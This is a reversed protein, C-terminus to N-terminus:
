SRQYDGGRIHRGQYVFTIDTTTLLAPASSYAGSHQQSSVQVRTPDNLINEIETVITQIPEIGKGTLM